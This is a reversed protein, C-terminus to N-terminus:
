SLPSIPVPSSNVWRCGPLEQHHFDNKLCWIRKLCVTFSTERLHLLPLLFDIPQMQVDLFPLWRADSPSQRRGCGGLTVAKCVAQATATGPRAPMCTWVLCKWTRRWCSCLKNGLSSTFRCQLPAQPYKQGKFFARNYSEPNPFIILFGLVASDLYDKQPHFVFLM